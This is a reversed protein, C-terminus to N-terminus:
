ICTRKFYIICKCTWHERKQGLITERFPFPKTLLAFEDKRVLLIHVM